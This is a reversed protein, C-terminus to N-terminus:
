SDCVELRSNWRHLLPRCSQAMLSGVVVVAYGM